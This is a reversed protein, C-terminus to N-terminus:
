IRGVDECVLLDLERTRLQEELVALEPRDRREGKGKTSVIRLEVPGEYFEAIVEKAHDIQDELSLEKQNRCGSIRAVIGVVLEHGNRPVIEDRPNAYPARAINCKVITLISNHNSSM